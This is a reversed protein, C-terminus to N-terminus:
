IWVAGRLERVLVILGDEYGARVTRPVGLEAVVNRWAGRHDHLAAEGCLNCYRGRHDRHHGRRFVLDALNMRGAHGGCRSGAEHWGDDAAVEDKNGALHRVIWTLPEVRMCMHRFM